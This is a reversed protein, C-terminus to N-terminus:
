DHDVLPEVAQQTLMNTSLCEHALTYAGACSYTGISAALGGLHLVLHSTTRKLRAPQM